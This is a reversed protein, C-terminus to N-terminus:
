LTRMNVLSRSWRDDDDDDDLGEAFMKEVAETSLYRKDNEPQRKGWRLPLQHGAMMMLSNQKM